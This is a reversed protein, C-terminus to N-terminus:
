SESCKLGIGFFVKLMGKLFMGEETLTQLSM